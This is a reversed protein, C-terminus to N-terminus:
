RYHSDGIIREVVVLVKLAYRYGAAYSLYSVPSKIITLIQFTYHQRFTQDGYLM